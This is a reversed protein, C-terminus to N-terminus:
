ENNKRKLITLGNNNTYREHIAWQKNDALFEEVAPWLGVYGPGEGKHEFLTTDHMIIYKKAKSAHKELEIKLQEYIHWTDIFLLDTEEIEIERTDGLVFQFDINNEKAINVVETLDGKYESPHKIDISILKKPDGMLFAYTSVIYRVGMETVTECQQTYRKLTPLHENIDSPISCLELYKKELKNM